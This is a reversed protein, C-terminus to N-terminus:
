DVDFRPVTITWHCSHARAKGKASAQPGGEVGDEKDRGKGKGKAKVEGGESVKRNEGWSEGGQANKSLVPVEAEQVQLLPMVGQSVCFFMDHRFGHLTQVLSQKALFVVMPLLYWVLASVINGPQANAVLWLRYRKIIERAGRMEVPLDDVVEDVALIKEGQAKPQKPAPKDAVEIAKCKSVALTGELEDVEDNGSWEEEAEDDMTLITPITASVPLFREAFPLV